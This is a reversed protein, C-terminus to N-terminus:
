GEEAAAHRRRSRGIARRGLTRVGLFLATWGLGNVVFSIALAEWFGSGQAHSHYYMYGSHLLPRDLLLVPWELVIMVWSLAVVQTHSLAGHAHAMTALSQLFIAALSLGIGTAVLYVRPRTLYSTRIM